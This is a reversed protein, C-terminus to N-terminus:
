EDITYPKANLSPGSNIESNFINDDTKIESNFINDDTKIESNLINDDTKIEEVRVSWILSFIPM